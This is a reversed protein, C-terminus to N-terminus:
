ALSEATDTVKVVMPAARKCQTPTTHPQAPIGQWRTHAPLREGKMLLSFNGLSANKEMITHYLVISAIGINCGDNVEVTSMKFVRDEYLHTQLVAESNICVDDGITMLDCETVDGSNIFVRKGIRAGLSRFLLAAFPTGLVIEILEPYIFYCYLYYIIDHKWIFVNWTPKSDPKLKGMMIWKLAVILSVLGLTIGLEIFPVLALTTILSCHSLLKNLIYLFNFLQILKFTTPLIIRTFELLLRLRILRKSPAFKEKDSYNTSLERKPLFVPPSGLWSTNNGAARDCDPTITMCGLLAGEGINSGSSLLSDNGIFSRKGIQVPAFKIAGQYVNPWALAVASAIFGEDRVTVLDPLIHPTYGIEVHKGLKAGLFRLFFPIYLTDAMVSVEDIDLMRVITWQRLYYFSKVSYIGPKIKNLLLKKLVGIGVYHLSLFILAGIPAAFFVTMLYHTQEHFHTIMLLAPFYCTYYVIMSLLLSLYHLFGYGVNKLSSTEDKQHVQNTIHHLPAKSQCAPSGAFFQGSPINTYSPLMSMDDLKSDDELTTHPSIVSRAGVFCRKGLTTPGIKLWGDEVIYGLLRADYGISSNDGITLLDHAAVNHSGIYCNKGINAGLLRYYLTILPSGILEHPSFLTKQLRDVLWWRLYFWGWLKYTGPKVRGLLVWKALISITFSAIPMAIFLGAFILLSTTSFLSTTNETIWHYCFIILLLQWANCAYQLLSGLLQGAGCLFYGIKSPKHKIAQQKESTDPSPTNFKDALQKITPNQYIDLISIDRMNTQHRLDSVIKAASLSHGGLDYFFDADVSITALQLNKEWVSAITQEIVTKPPLYHTPQMIKQPKPLANRNVKGSPLLPFSSVLEFSSPFMYQPLKQQLFTRFASLDFSACQKDIKLYAVLMPNDSGQLSVIAQQVGEYTMIITEIDNLEIRFGRLKIQDDIRGLFQLDGTTTMSVRDGTRYLYQHPHVPDSIFKEKTLEPRNIYERALGLGGICLEGAQNDKIPQLHEDLIVVYYGPLPRGITIPKDPTCETYTAIVTTETPGYTNLIKLGPRSWRKILQPPCAEGGLVLLRLAPLEGHLTSLLTPVTSFFSIRHQTLFDILGIGSRTDKSTCAVLTAGTAFAMWIEELSADFALSFGQYIRDNSTIEYIDRATTVYHCISQHTIAVGKPKGTSGSTYIIYSLAQHQNPNPPCIIRSTPQRAVLPRINDLAIPKPLKLQERQLVTSDTLVAHFLTDSFICNIRDDPMDPEIPVYTAGIKLVALIAIYNKECRELLIGIIHNQSLGQTLLYHALQNARKDLEQYSFSVHNCILATNHPYQDVSREFLHHLQVANNVNSLDM